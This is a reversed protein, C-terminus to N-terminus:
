GHLTTADAMQALVAAACALVTGCTAFLIKDRGPAKASGSLEERRREGILLMAVALGALVFGHWTVGLEGSQMGSRLVLIANAAMALTTRRWALVTREPQLGADRTM